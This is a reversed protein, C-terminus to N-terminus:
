ELCLREILLCLCGTLLLSLRTHLGCLFTLFGAVKKPLEDDFYVYAARILPGNEPRKVRHSENNPNFNLDVIEDRFRTHILCFQEYDDLLQVRDDLRSFVIKLEGFVSKLEARDSEVTTKCEFKNAEYRELRDSLFNFELTFKQIEPFRNLFPFQGDQISRPLADFNREDLLRGLSQNNKTHTFRVAQVRLVPVRSAMRLM